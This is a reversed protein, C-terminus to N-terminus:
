LSPTKRSRVRQSSSNSGTASGFSCETLFMFGCGTFLPAVPKARYAGRKLRASLDQLNEELKEGYREWTQGDVGAAADKKITLYAARLRAVDYIHHLLATFRQKTDRKAVQRVRELASPAGGRSQRRLANREPSNEKARGRGEVAEAAPEGANPPKGPVALRDSKGRGNMM